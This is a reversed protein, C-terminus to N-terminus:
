ERELDEKREEEAQAKPSRPARSEEFQRLREGAPGGERARAPGANGSGATTVQDLNVGARVAAEPAERQIAELLVQALQVLEADRQAGVEALEKALSSQNIHSDPRLELAEIHVRLTPFRASLAAQLRGYKDKVAQSHVGALGAAAGAALAATVLDM